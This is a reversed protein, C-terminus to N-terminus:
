RAHDAGNGRSNIYNNEIVKAFNEPRLLWELNARFDKVRGCLFDSAAVQAFLKQWYDLTDAPKGHKLRERIRSNLAGSRQKSWVKVSPLDPLLEHYAGIVEKHFEDSEYAPRERTRATRPRSDQTLLVGSSEPAPAPAPPSESLQRQAIASRSPSRDNGWRKANTAEAGKQRGLLERLAAERHDELRLNRRGGEVRQFKPEVFPWAIRWETKSARAIERLQEEDDPLTGTENGGADWQADLLERYVARAVLPWGRTSSSFDRPYWKMWAFRPAAIM